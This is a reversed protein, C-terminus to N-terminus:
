FNTPTTFKKVLHLFLERWVVVPVAVAHTKLNNEKMSNLLLLDLAIYTFTQRRGTLYRALLARQCNDLCKRM